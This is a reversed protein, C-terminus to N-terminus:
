DLAPCAGPTTAVRVSAQVNAVATLGATNNGGSASNAVATLSSAVSQILGSSVNTVPLSSVSSLVSLASNQSSSSLPVSPACSVVALVAAASSATNAATPVVSAIFSLLQM